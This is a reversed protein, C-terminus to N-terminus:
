LTKQHRYYAFAVIFICTLIFCAILDYYPEEIIISPLPPITVSYYSTPASSPSCAFRGITDTANVYYNVTIGFAGLVITAKYVAGTLVMTENNWTSNGVIRYYLIVSSLDVTDNVTLTVIIKGPGATINCEPTGFVPPTGTGTPDAYSYDATDNVRVSAKTYDAASVTSITTLLIILSM